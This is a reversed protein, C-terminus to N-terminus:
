NSPPAALPATHETWAGGDWYRQIASGNPDPYWGAPVAPPPPPASFRAVDQGSSEIFMPASEPEGQLVKRGEIAAAQNIAAAFKRASGEQKSKAEIMIVQGDELDVTLYINNTKKKAMAGIATGVGLTVVSGVVMRTATTRRQTGGVEVTAHAGAVPHKTMKFHISPGKLKIGEFEARVAQDVMAEMWGRRPEVTAVSQSPSASPTSRQTGLDTVPEASQVAADVDAVFSGIPENGMVYNLDAIGEKDHGVRGRLLLRMEAVKMGKSERWSVSEVAGIPVVWPSASRKRKPQLWSRHEFTITGAAIDLTASTGTGKYTIATMGHM